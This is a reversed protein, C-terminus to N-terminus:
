LEGWIFVTLLAWIPIGVCILGRIVHGSLLSVIGYAAMIFVLIFALAMGASIALKLFNEKQDNNM